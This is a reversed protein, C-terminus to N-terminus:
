KEYLGSVNRINSIGFRKAVLYIVTVMVIQGPVFAFYNRTANILICTITGLFAVDVDNNVKCEYKALVYGVLGFYLFVGLLGFNLYSEIVQNFGYGKYMERLFGTATMHSGFPNLINLVPRYYSQGYLMGYIGNDMDNLVYVSTRIQMGMEAFADVYNISAASLNGVIGVDRLATITPIILFVMVGILIIMKGSIKNGQIGKMGMVALLAYMFEGKNGNAAFIITILVWMMWGIKSKKIEGAATLYLTGVYFVILVYSYLPSRYASSNMFQEYTSFISMSGWIIHYAFYLLNISLLSTGIVKMKQSNGKYCDMAAKMVRYKKKSVCRMFEFTMIAINGLLTAKALQPYRLFSLTYDHYQNLIDRGAFHYPIILGFQTCVTYIIIVSSFCLYRNDIKWIDYIVVAITCISMAVTIAFTYEGVLYIIVYGLLVIGHLLTLLSVTM